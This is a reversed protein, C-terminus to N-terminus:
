VTFVELAPVGASDDRNGRGTGLHLCECPVDTFRSGPVLFGLKCLYFQSPPCQDKIAHKQFAPPDPIQPASLLLDLHCYSGNAALVM